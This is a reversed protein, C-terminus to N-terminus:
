PARFLLSDKICFFCVYVFNTDHMVNTCPVSVFVVNLKEFFGFVSSNMLSNGIAGRRGGTVCCQYMNSLFSENGMKLCDSVMSYRDNMAKSSWQPACADCVSAFHVHQFRIFTVIIELVSKSPM